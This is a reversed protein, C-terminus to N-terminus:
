GREFSFPFLPVDIHNPTSKSSQMNLKPKGIQDEAKKGRTADDDDDDDDDDFLM